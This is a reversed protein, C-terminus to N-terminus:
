NVKTEKIIGGYEQYRKEKERKPDFFLLNNQM